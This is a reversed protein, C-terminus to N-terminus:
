PMFVRYHFEHRTPHLRRHRVTGEYLRSKM